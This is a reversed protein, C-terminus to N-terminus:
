PYFETETEWWRWPCSHYVIAASSNKVQLETLQVLWPGFEQVGKSREKTGEEFILNASVNRVAGLLMWELGKFSCGKRVLDFSGWIRTYGNDAPEVREIGVESVVPWIRGEIVGGVYDLFIFFIAVMM